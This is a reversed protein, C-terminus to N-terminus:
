VLPKNLICIIWKSIPMLNPYILSQIINVQGCFPQQVEKLLHRGQGRRPHRELLHQPLRREVHRSSDRRRFLESLGIRISRDVYLTQIKRCQLSFLIKSITPPVYILTSCFTHTLLASLFLHSSVSNQNQSIKLSIFSKTLWSLGATPIRM